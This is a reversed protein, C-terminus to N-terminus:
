PRLTGPQDFFATLSCAEDIEGWSESSAQLFSDSRIFFSLLEIGLFPRISAFPHSVAWDLFSLFFPLFPTM